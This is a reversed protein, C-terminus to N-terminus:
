RKLIIVTAAATDDEVFGGSTQVLGVKPDFTQRGGAEGRLQWVVEAVQAMGTAAVPHGRGALGGSPNVTINGTIRTRGEDLLRVAEGEPCFGLEEYHCLEIPAMADHVEAVDIDEPGVGALEYASKATLAITNEPESNNPDQFKGSRLSCSIITVLPRNTFKRAMAETCLIAAAAGDGMPACMYLHLPEAILRSGLVQEASLPKRNQAYPNMSANFSNKEVVRAFDMKTCGSTQMYKRLKMAYHATFQFGFDRLRIDSDAALIKISESTDPLFLKEVGVALAVDHVGSAVELWAGRFATTGSACANEVNIIPLGSLGADRLIVQGRVGEQGTVLGGLSNGVYAVEIDKPSLRSDEIANWIATRGLDMLSKDLFKGFSHMGVGLVVVNRM